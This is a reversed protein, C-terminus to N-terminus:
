HCSEEFVPITYRSEEPITGGIRTARNELYLFQSGRNRLFRAVEVNLWLNSTGEECLVNELNTSRSCFRESMIIREMKMTVAKQGWFPVHGRFKIGAGVRQIVVWLFERSM